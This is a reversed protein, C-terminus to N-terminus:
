ECRLAASIAHKPLTKTEPEKKRRRLRYKINTMSSLDRLDARTHQMCVGKNQVGTLKAVSEGDNRKLRKERGLVKEADWVTSHLTHFYQCLM